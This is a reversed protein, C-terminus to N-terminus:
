LIGPGWTGSSQLESVLEFNMGILSSSGQLHLCWTADFCRFDDLSVADYRMSFRCERHLTVSVMFINLPKRCNPM